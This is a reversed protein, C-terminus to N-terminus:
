KYNTRRLEIEIILPPNTMSLGSLDQNIIEGIKDSQDIM